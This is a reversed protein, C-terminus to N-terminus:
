SEKSANGMLPSFGAEAMLANSGTEVAVELKTMFDDIELGPQITPLFELVALGPKRMLGHRPWFVGVNTAAPVVAQGTETYLVGTGIKYPKNAGAAVRTGQPFIILQGPQTTNNVDEVMKKIALGRKGRDVAICGIAKAYFRVIPTYLIEKKMIFKPRKAVSVIMLIDFFSQHKSAILLEGEPVPGRIESRLGVIYHALWRVLLCYHRIARFAFEKDFLSLIGYVLGMIAMAAYMLFVFIISRILQLAQM